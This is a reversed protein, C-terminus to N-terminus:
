FKCCIKELMSVDTSKAEAGHVDVTATMGAILQIDDPAQDLSIRVPVRQALRVWSFTPTINALLGTESTRERDAIGTAISDVHGQLERSEGMLRITVKDGVRIRPLKNEEFYGEVRLSDTDVLAIKATGASVYDGPQLTLNSIQGNVTARIDARDLNLQALAVSAEGQKLNADAQAEATRAQEQSLVSTAGELKDERDRERKAQDYAAQASALTAQAQALAIEFRKRDVRFLVDGAKVKQNDRVLVESVLGSVDPAIGVVDASVKADRTWPAEMYHQWLGRGAFCAAVVVVLTVLVRGLM